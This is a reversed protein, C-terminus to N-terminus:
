SWSMWLIMGSSAGWSRQIFAFPVECLPQTTVTVISNHRVQHRARLVSLFKKSCFVSLEKQVDTM